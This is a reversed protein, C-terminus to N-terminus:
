TASGTLLHAGLRGCRHLTLRSFDALPETNIVRQEDAWCLANTQHEFARAGRAQGNVRIVLVVFNNPTRCCRRKWSTSPV